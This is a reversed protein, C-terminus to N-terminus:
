PLRVLIEDLEMPPVSAGPRKELYHWWFVTISETEERIIDNVKYQKGTGPEITQDVPCTEPAICPAWEIAPLIDTPFVRIYVPKSKNNTVILSKGDVSATVPASEYPSIIVPEKEGVISCGGILVTAIALLVCVISGVEKIYIGKISKVQCM